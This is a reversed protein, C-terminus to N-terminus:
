RYSSRAHQFSVDNQLDRDVTVHAAPVASKQTMHSM